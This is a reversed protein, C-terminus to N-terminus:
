CAGVLSHWSLTDHTLRSSVGARVFAIGITFHLFGSRITIYLGTKGKEVTMVLPNSWGAYGMRHIAVLVSTPNVRGKRVNYSALWGFFAKYDTSIRSTSVGQALRYLCGALIHLLNMIRRFLFQSFPVLM